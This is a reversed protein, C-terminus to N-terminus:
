GLLDEPNIIVQTYYKDITSEEMYSPPSSDNGIIKTYYCIEKKSYWHEDDFPCCVYLIERRFSDVTNLKIIDGVKYKPQRM